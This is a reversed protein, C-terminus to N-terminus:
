KNKRFSLAEAALVAALVGMIMKGIVCVTKRTKEVTDDSCDDEQESEFGTKEEDM